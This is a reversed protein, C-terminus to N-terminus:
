RPKSPRLPRIPGSDARVAAVRAARVAAAEDAVKGAPAEKGKSSALDVRDLPEAGPDVPVAAARDVWVAVAVGAAVAGAAEGM